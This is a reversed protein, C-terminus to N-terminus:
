ILEPQMPVWHKAALAKSHLVELYKVFEPHQSLQVARSAAHTLVFHSAMCCSSNRIAVPVRDPALAKECLALHEGRVHQKTESERFRAECRLKMHQNILV